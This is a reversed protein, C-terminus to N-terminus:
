RYGDWDLAGKYACYVCAIHLVTGPVLVAAYGFLTAVLWLGGAVLRGNYVQGLGPIVVSLVAAIGPHPPRARSRRYEDREYDEYWLEDRV